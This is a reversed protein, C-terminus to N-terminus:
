LPFKNESISMLCSLDNISNDMSDNETYQKFNNFFEQLTNKERRNVNNNPHSIFSIQGYVITKHPHWQLLIFLILFINLGRPEKSLTKDPKFFFFFFKISGLHM